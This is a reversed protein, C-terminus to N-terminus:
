HIKKDYFEVHGDKLFYKAVVIKLKGGKVLKHLISSEEYAKKAMRYANEEVALEILGPKSVGPKEVARVAPQIAEVIAPISGHELAHECAATVAGCKEHGMVVLLPSGCHAAAYEISGMAIPDLVNGATRIVFIEGLGADFIYEPTVRSDSCCVVVAYPHQGAYVEAMRAKWNKKEFKFKMYRKNGEKLKTLAEDSTISKATHIDAFSLTCAILFFAISLTLIINRRMM